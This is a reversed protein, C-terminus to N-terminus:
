YSTMLPKLVESIHPIIDFIMAKQFRAALFFEDVKHRKQRWALVKV